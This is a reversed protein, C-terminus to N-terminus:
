DIEIVKSCKYFNYPKNAHFNVCLYYRGKPLPWTTSDDDDDINNENFTFTGTKKKKVCNNTEKQDGDQTDCGTYGWLLDKEDLDGKPAQGNEEAYLGVWQNVIAVPTDFNAKIDDGVGLQTSLPEINAKTKIKGKPKKIKIKMCNTLLEYKEDADDDDEDYYENLYCVIYKGQRLPSYGYGYYSQKPDKASFKVKGKDVVSDCDEQSNCDNLWAHLLDMSPVDDLPQTGTDEFLGIWPYQGTSPNPNEFTVKIDKGFAHKKKVSLPARQELERNLHEARLGAGAVSLIQLLSISLHLKSVM